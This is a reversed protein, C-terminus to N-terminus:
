KTGHRPGDPPQFDSRKERLESRRQFLIMSLEFVQLHELFGLDDGRITSDESIEGSRIEYRTTVQSPFRPVIDDLFQGPQSQLLTHSLDIASQATLLRLSRVIIDYSLKPFTIDFTEGQSALQGNVEHFMYHKISLPRQGWTRPPISESSDHLSRQGTLSDSVFSM